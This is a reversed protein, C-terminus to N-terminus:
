ICFLSAVSNTPTHHRSFLFLITSFRENIGHPNLTGIEIQKQELTRRSESSGLHLSLGCDAMQQKSHSPLNYHRGGPKSADKVNRQVDRLDDDEQKVSIYSITM